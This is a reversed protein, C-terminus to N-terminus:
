NKLISNEPHDIIIMIMMIKLLTIILAYNVMLIVTITIILILINKFVTLLILFKTIVNIQSRIM